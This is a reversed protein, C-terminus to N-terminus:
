KAKKTKWQYLPNQWLVPDSRKRHRRELYRFYRKVYRKVVVFSVLMFILTGQVILARIPMPVSLMPRRGRRVGPGTGNTVKMKKIHSWKKSFKDHKRVKFKM